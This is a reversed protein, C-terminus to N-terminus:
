ALISVRSRPPIQPADVVLEVQQAKKIDMIWALHFGKMTFSLKM